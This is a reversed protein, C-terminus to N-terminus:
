AIAAVVKKPRGRGASALGVKVYTDLTAIPALAKDAAAIRRLLKDVASQYMDRRAGATGARWQGTKKDLATQVLTGEFFEHVKIPLNNEGEGDRLADRRWPVERAM